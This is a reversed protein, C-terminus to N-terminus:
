LTHYVTNCHEHLFCGGLARHMGRVVAGYWVSSNNGLEVNGVVAASEAVFANSGLKPTVNILNLLPKHRWVTTLHLHTHLWNDTGCGLM